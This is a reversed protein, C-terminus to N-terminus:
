TKTAAQAHLNTDVAM